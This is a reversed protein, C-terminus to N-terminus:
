ASFPSLDGGFFVIRKNVGTLDSAHGGFFTIRKNVQSLDSKRGGLFAIRKNERLSAQSDCNILFTYDYLNKKAFVALLLV